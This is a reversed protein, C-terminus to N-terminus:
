ARHSVLPSEDEKESKHPVDRGYKTALVDAMIALALEPPTRAGIDLGIPAHLRSLFSGPVARRALEEVDKKLRRRSALLGVFRANSGSLAELVAVDREGKTLVVVSDRNGIRLAIPDVETAKVIADPTERLDPLPDVVVVEFGLAKAQHVLADEIDDRGGQGVIIMRETPLMPEVFVELTGGCDTEVYIEDESPAQMTGAIAHATDVLHVRVVRPSGDIMTRLAVECIPGEPCGGGLTGRVVDGRGSILIKFGPKALTSGETKTVTAVAFAERRSALENLRETYEPTKM